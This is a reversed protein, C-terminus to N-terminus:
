VASWRAPWPVYPRHPRHRPGMPSSRSSTKGSATSQTRHADPGRDHTRAGHPTTGPGAAPGMGRPFAVRRGRAKGLVAVRPDIRDLSKFGFTHCIWDITSRHYFAVHTADNAYAWTPFAELSTWPETMVTLVGGPKLWADMRAWDGAPHVFHEVVETAFIFDFPGAPPDPRFFPDYNVCSMGAEEVLLCLTPSPGCGYDLGRMGASLHPLTPTIARNLFAVYGPEGRGNRHKEYRAKEAGPEPLFERETFILRCRGCVRHRRGWRDAVPAFPGAAGCLPCTM